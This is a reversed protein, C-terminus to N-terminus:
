INELSTFYYSNQFLHNQYFQTLMHLEPGYFETRMATPLLTGLHSHALYPLINRDINQREITHPLLQPHAGLALLQDWYLSLIQLLVTLLLLLQLVVINQQALRDFRQTATPPLPLGLDYFHYHSLCESVIEIAPELFFKQNGRRKDLHIIIFNKRGVLPPRVVLRVPTPIRRSTTPETMTPPTLFATRLM